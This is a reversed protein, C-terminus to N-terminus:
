KLGHKKIEQLSLFTVNAMLQIIDIPDYGKAVLASIASTVLISPGGVDNAVDPLVRDQDDYIRKTKDSHLNSM